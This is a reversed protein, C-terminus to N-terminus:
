ENCKMSLFLAVDDELRKDSDIYGIKFGPRHLSSYYQDSQTNEQWRDDIAIVRGNHEIYILSSHLRKNLMKSMDYQRESEIKQLFALFSARKPVFMPLEREIDIKSVNAKYYQGEIFDIIVNYSQEFNKVNFSEELVANIFAQTLVVEVHINLDKYLSHLKAINAFWLQKQKENVFRYQQDYSTCLLIKSIQNRENVYDIFGILETLDKYMLSTTICVQDIKDNSLCLDVIKYFKDRRNFKYMQHHFFEGGILGVRRYMSGIDNCQLREITYDLLVDEDLLNYNDSNYCFKCKHACDRWLQFQIFM